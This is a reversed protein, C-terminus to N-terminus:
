APPRIHRLGEPPFAAQTSESADLFARLHEESVRVAGQKRTSLRYCRLRGGAILAYVQSESLRLLQAVEPVLYFKM